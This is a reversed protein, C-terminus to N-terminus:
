GGLFMVDDDGVNDNAFANGLNLPSLNASKANNKNRDGCKKPLVITPSLDMYSTRKYINPRQERREQNLMNLIHHCQPKGIQRVWIKVMYLSEKLSRTTQSREFLLRVVMSAFESFNSIRCHQDVIIPGKRTQRMPDVKMDELFKSVQDYTEQSEVDKKMMEDVMMKQEEVAIFFGKVMRRYFGKSSWDVVRPYRKHREYYSNAGVRFSELVWTKFAWTFEFILYTKKDVGRRPETGYLSPWRRVNADKLQSYLTPWVYSGWHYKEWAVKDNELRLIWDPVRHRDEVCLLVLQLIGVCYLSVADDDHLRFPIPAEDNDYEDFYESGWVKVWDCPLIRGEM